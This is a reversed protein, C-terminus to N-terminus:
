TWTILTKRPVMAKVKIKKIARKFPTKVKTKELYGFIMPEAGIKQGKAM